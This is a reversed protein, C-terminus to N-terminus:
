KILLMKRHITRSPTELKYFYIGSSLNKANFEVDYIKGAITQENFLEAIENGLADYIKLSAPVSENLAFRITTSPNFPNPYNQELVFDNPIKGADIEIENSYEYTGDNDIQKLRYLYVGYSIGKDLYSYENPSNSNGHGEVFVIKKWNLGGQIDFESCQVEFGYNNVESETRWDLKVNGNGLVKATFSSLEVPVASDVQLIGSASTASQGDPNTITVTYYGDAVGTTNLNLTVQTPSDYTVSNVVIGGPLSASIHNPFGAGPDFFGSGNVVTGTIIVNVSVENPGIATPTSITPTVPPPALLQVVQVGWTNTSSCFEQATWITMDNDPDLSTYSYDGWRRGGIGGPDSPPNYATSSSTYGPFTTGGPGDRLTGLADGSLRGTTFANIRENTGAISCGLAVHGQGSVMISPIWYNRQNSDGATGSDDYLTGSQVVTPTTSLNQLEYWRAANRTRPLTTTGSNNVGINHATWLRGNRLHAAYLRDDLADLRGNNGGTNGLHPVKVPFSTSIMTAVSINASMTPTGGPNTVRRIMLTGFTANDVGIFYGVATPGTNNPDYNDVGRPAFPGANSVLLNDFISGSPTGAIISAKNLVYAKVNSFAGAVTFKNTGIYLGDADIGLSPYDDFFTPNQYYTFSWVTSGTINSGDSWAFLLRNPKSISGGSLTVDVITLFWRGSLRDYRVNPDSTFTIEGVGPTTTVLSFFADTDADIVGDAVGTSKNFTRLRGNIFVVFQTPGVAGMVDPPFAGADPLTAGTFTTGQTQPANAYMETKNALNPWQSLEKVGPAQPLIKRNPEELGLGSNRKKFEPPWYNSWHQMLEVNTSKIVPACYIKEGTIEQAFSNFSLLIISFLLLIYKRM